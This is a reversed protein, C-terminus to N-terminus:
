ARVRRRSVLWNGAKVLGAILFAALAIMPGGCALGFFAALAFVLPVAWLPLTLVLWILLAILLATTVTTAINEAIEDIDM